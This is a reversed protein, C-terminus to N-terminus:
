GTTIGIACNLGLAKLRESLTLSCVIARSPDDEHIVRPLGFVAVLTSGQLHM